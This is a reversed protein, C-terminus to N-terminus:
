HLMLVSVENHTSGHSEALSEYAILDDTSQRESLSTASPEVGDNGVLCTDYILIIWGQWPHSIPALGM